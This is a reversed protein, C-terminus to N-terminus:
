PMNTEHPALARVRLRTGEVGVVMVTAGVPVLRGDVTEALWEEREVRVRGQAKAPDIAVVVIAEKQVVRDIGVHNAQDGSIRSILPRALFVSVSSAVIFAVLQWVPLFGMFALAAAAAAGIGFCMLFFGATFIEAILFILAMIAWIWPIWQEM